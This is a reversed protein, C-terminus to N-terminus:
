PQTGYSSSALYPRFLYPCRSPTGDRRQRIEDMSLPEFMRNAEDDVVCTSSRSSCGPLITRRYTQSSRQMPKLLDDQVVAILALRQAKSLLRQVLLRRQHAFNSQEIYKTYKRGRRVTLRLFCLAPM